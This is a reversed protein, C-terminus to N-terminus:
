ELTVSSEKTSSVRTKRLYLIEIRNDIIVNIYVCKNSFALPMAFIYSVAVNEHLLFYKKDYNYDMVHSENRGRIVVPVSAM